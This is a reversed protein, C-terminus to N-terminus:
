EKGLPTVTLSLIRITGQGDLYLGCAGDPGPHVHGHVVTRGDLIGKLHRGASTVALTVEGEPVEISEQDLTELRGERRDALSARGGSAVTFRGGDGAEGVHHALGVTGDFGDLALRAEVQVDGFSGPLVLLAEGEIGFTVGEQSQTGEIWRVAEANFGGAPRLVEGFAGSDGPEPLWHLTGDEGVELRSTASAAPQPEAPAGAPQPPAPESAVARVAVGHRFVLAGGLDATKALAACAVLGAALLLLRPLPRAHEREWRLVALRLVALAGITWTTWHAWDSHEGIHPQVLAPVGTLGDAAAEGARLAAFAGVAAAAWLAAAARLLWTQRRLVLGLLEAFLAAPFLAIPFHVVAPHLNPLSTWSFLWDYM